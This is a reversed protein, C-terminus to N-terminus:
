NGGPIRIPVVLTANGNTVTIKATGPGVATMDGRGNVTVVNTASSQYTTLSSYSLMVDPNNAFHGTIELFRQDGAARFGRPEHYPGLIRSTLSLPSDQLEIDLSIEDQIVADYGRSSFEGESM